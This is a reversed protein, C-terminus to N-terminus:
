STMKHRKQSGKVSLCWHDNGDATPSDVKVIGNLPFPV